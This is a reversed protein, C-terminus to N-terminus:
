ADASCLSLFHRIMPTSESVLSEPHFQVGFIPLETHRMAMIIPDPEDTWACPIYRSDVSGTRVAWSHYRMVRLPSPVDDFLPCHDHVVASIRGHFPATQYVTAGFYQALWQHGLCVGFVPQRQALFHQFLMPTHEVDQPQGPGPSLVLGQYQHLPLHQCQPDHHMIVDVTAQQELLHVLNYTFSDDHDIVLIRPPNSM